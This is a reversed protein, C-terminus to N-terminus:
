NNPADEGAPPPGDKRRQEFQQHKAALQAKQETTLVAFIQSMMKAHQVELEVQVNARAQAAARVAAEDFTGDKLPDGQGEHLTRLQERLAKTSEEFSERIKKIQAKQDDTLNLDRAIPGLGDRPAGGPGGHFGRGPGPGRGEQSFAVVALALLLAVVVAIIGSKKTLSLKM